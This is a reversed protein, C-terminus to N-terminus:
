IQPLILSSDHEFTNKGTLIYKCNEDVLRRGSEASCKKIRELECQGVPQIFLVARFYM